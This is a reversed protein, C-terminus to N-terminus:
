EIKLATGRWGNKNRLSIIIDKLSAKKFWGEIEDRSIYRTKVAVLQDFAIFFIAYFNFKSISNLYDNLPIIRAIRMTFLFMNMPRIIYKLALFLALALFYTLIYLFPLPMKSTLHLRVPDILKRIIFNGERAYVWVSIRGGNKLLAVLRRFAEEPEPLHHLVGICYIYDFVPLLPLNYIDAQLLHVNSFEQTNAYAVDVAESLDFGVVEKAGFAAAQYTHRGNGCGADLVVKGNMQRPNVPWIWDLFQERYFDFHKPFAKWSYGFNRATRKKDLSMQRDIFRPIGSVILYRKLCKECVLEGALPKIGEAAKFPARCKPCVLINKLYESM